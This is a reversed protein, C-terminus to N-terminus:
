DLAKEMYVRHLGKEVARRTEFYGIRSYLAINETMLANTYLRITRHGAARAAAEATDMLFRGYGKGHEAPLVAVNDLLLADPEHILILLGVAKGGRELIQATGAAVHAAYDDVMPGPKRGIREVYHRYARDVIDEITAVDEARALRLVADVGSV